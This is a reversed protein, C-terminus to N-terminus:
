VAKLEKESTILGKKTTKRKIWFWTPKIDNFDPSNALWLM